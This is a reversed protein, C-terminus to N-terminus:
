SALHGRKMYLTCGDRSRLAHRSGPPTRVWSGREYRGDADEVDGDLVLLEEGDPHGHGPIAADAALRILHMTEPYGAEEYLTITETGSAAGARWDARNTDIIIHRRNMGPYQQLKVFLVCGESSFPAHSFGEPNLLYTGAPYDGHEDSFVGELVLIEEGDPHPHEPFASNADYRVISTVRSSEAAGALDLRKRWVSPSPSALWDMAATHMVVRKSFDANFGESAM